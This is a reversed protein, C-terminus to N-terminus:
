DNAFLFDSLRPPFTLLIYIFANLVLSCYTAKSNIDSKATWM